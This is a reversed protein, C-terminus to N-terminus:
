EKVDDFGEELKKLNKDAFIQTITQMFTEFICPFSPKFAVLKEQDKISILKLRQLSMLLFEWSEEGQISGSPNAEEFAQRIKLEYETEEM